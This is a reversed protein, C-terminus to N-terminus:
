LCVTGWLGDLLPHPLQTQTYLPISYYLTTLQQTYHYLSTTYLSTTHHVTTYILISHTLPRDVPPLCQFINVQCAKAMSIIRPRLGLIIEIALAQWTLM